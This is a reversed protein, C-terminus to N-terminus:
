GLGYCVIEVLDVVDWDGELVFLQGSEFGFFFKNGGIDMVVFVFVDDIGM